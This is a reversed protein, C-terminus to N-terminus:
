PRSANSPSETHSASAYFFRSPHVPVRTGFRAREKTFSITLADRARTFEKEKELLAKRASVWQEPDVVPHTTITDEPLNSIRYIITYALIYHDPDPM